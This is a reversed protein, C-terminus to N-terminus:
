FKEVVRLVANVVAVLLLMGPFRLHNTAKYAEIQNKVSDRTAPDQTYNEHFDHSQHEAAFNRKGSPERRPPKASASSVNERNAFSRKRRFVLEEVPSPNMWLDPKSGVLNRKQCTLTRKKEKCAKKNNKVLSPKKLQQSKVNKRAKPQCHEDPHLDEGKIYAIFAPDTPQKVAM